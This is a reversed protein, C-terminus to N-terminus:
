NIPVFKFIKALKKIRKIEKYNRSLYNAFISILKKKKILCMTQKSM